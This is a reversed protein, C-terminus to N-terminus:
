KEFKPKSTIAALIPLYKAHGDVFEEPTMVSFEVIATVRMGTGEVLPIAAAAQAMTCSLRIVHEGGMEPISDEPPSFQIECYKISGAM